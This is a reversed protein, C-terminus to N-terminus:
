AQGGSLECRFPRRSQTWRDSLRYLITCILKQRGPLLLGARGPAVHGARGAWPHEGPACSLNGYQWCGYVTVYRRQKAIPAGMLHCHPTVCSADGWQRWEILATWEQRGVGQMSPHAEGCDAACVQAQLLPLSGQPAPLPPPALTLPRVCVAACRLWTLWAPVGGSICAPM